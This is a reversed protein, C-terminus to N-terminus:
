AVGVGVAGADGVVDRGACVCACVSRCLALVCVVTARVRALGLRSSICSARGPDHLVSPLSVSAAGFGATGLTGGAM